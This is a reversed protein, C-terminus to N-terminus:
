NLPVSVWIEGGVADFNRAGIGDYSVVGRFSLGSPRTMMVGGTVKGRLKDAEISTNAFQFTDAGRFHWIGELKVHPEIATGNRMVHRYGIEPGFQLRGISVRQKSVAASNSKFTGSHDQIHAVSVSPSFRWRGDTWNGTLNSRALWRTTNFDSSFTQFPSVKNSSQGWAARADWLLNPTLRISAYPGVMWGKGNAGYQLTKSSETLSDFQALVGFLIAPRVLYDAGVYVVGYHGSTNSSADFKTYHGETWVDFRSM